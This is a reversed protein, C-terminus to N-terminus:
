HCNTLPYPWYLGSRRVEYATVAVLAGGVPLVAALVAWIVPSNGRVLVERCGLGELACPSSSVPGPPPAGVHGVAASAAAAGAVLVSRGRPVSAPSTVPLCYM